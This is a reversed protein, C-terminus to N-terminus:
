PLAAVAVAFVAITSYNDHSGSARRRLRAEMRAIWDGPDEAKALDAEMETETVYEWFGDSALLFADGASVPAAEARITPRCQGGAGLSRLLRNRDEHFRVAEPAIEGADSLAQPVSHDKTQSWVRGARLAYLRSDGVHGWWASTGDSLLLVVTTRMEGLRGDRAQRDLIARNATELCYEVVDRSCGLKDRFATLITDVAVEAAVEGGGHGGLGDALVWCGFPADVAVGCRDQNVARGGSSSRTETQFRITM